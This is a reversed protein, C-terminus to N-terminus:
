EIIEEKEIIQQTVYNQGDEEFGLLQSRRASTEYYYKLKQQMYQQFQDKQDKRKQEKDYKAKNIVKDDELEYVKTFDKANTKLKQEDKANLIHIPRPRWFIDSIKTITDKILQEGIASWIMVSHWQDSMTVFYVGNPSWLCHSMYFHNTSKTIEIVFSTQDKEQKKIIQGFEIKGQDPSGRTKNIICFYNGNSAWLFENTEKEKLATINILKISKKQDEQIAYIYFSSTQLPKGQKDKERIQLAFKGSYPEVFINDVDDNVSQEDIEILDSKLLNGVQLTSTVIRNKQKKKILAALWRGQPNPFLQISDVEQNIVKWRLEQKGRQIDIIQILTKNQTKSAIQAFAIQNQEPIFYLNQINNAQIVEIQNFEPSQYIIVSDKYIRAFFKSDTSFKISNIDSQAPFIRLMRQDRVSWLIFNDEQNLGGNYSVLLKENPSFLISKIGKHEFEHLQELQEGGFLQFSDQYLAVLYAGLPSWFLTEIRPVNINAQEKLTKEIPSFLTHKVKFKECVLTIGPREDKIFALLEQINKTCLPTFENTQMIQQYEKYNHTQLINKGFKFGDIKQKSSIQDQENQFNLICVGDMSLKPEEVLPPIKTDVLIKNLAKQLNAYKDETVKPLNSIINITSTQLKYQPRNLQDEKIWQSIAQKVFQDPIDTKIDLEKELTAM